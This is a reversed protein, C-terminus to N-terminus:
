LLALSVSFNTCDRWGSWCLAQIFNYRGPVGCLPAAYACFAYSGARWLIGVSGAYGFYVYLPCIYYFFLCAGSVFHFFLVSSLFIEMVSLCYKCYYGFINSFESVNYLGFFFSFSFWISIFYSSM